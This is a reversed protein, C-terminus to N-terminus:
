KKTSIICRDINNYDKVIKNVYFNSARLQKMVKFKQDFGIELLLKGGVKLLNSSKKIVKYLLLSGDLGGRLAVMPEYNVIDKALYKISLNNIYPPNSVILDYKGKYFNDVSSKYFKIRNELHHLKANIEAVKLAKKSVDIAVGKVNHLEKLISIILCGSGTGIDLIKKNQYKNVLKLTEEILIETDPRPILVNKDVYFNNKWFEKRRLIYAVPENLKRRNILNKYLASKENDLIYDPNLILYKLDKRLVHCLLIEADIKSNKLKSSLLSKYALNLVKNISYSMM